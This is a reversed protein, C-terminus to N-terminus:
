FKGKNAVAPVHVGRLCDQCCSRLLNVEEVHRYASVFSALVEGIIFAPINCVTIQIKRTGMYEPQLQFFKTINNTAVKAAQEETPM